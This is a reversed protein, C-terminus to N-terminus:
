ITQIILFVDSNIHQKSQIIYQICCQKCFMEPVINLYHEGFHVTFHSKTDGTVYEFLSEYKCNPSINQRLGYINDVSPLFYEDIGAFQYNM